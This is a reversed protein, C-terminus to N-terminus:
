PLPTSSRSRRVLLLAALGMLGAAVPWVWILDANQPPLTVMPMPDLRFVHLRQRSAVVSSETDAIGVSELYQRLMGADFDKLRHYLGAAEAESELRVARAPQVGDSSQVTVLPHARVNRYWQSREGYPCWLYLRGGLRHPMLATRRAKGSKLGRTTVLVLPRGILQGLGLRWLAVPARHLVRRAPTNPFGSIWEGLRELPGHAESGTAADLHRAATSTREM